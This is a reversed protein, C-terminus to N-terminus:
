QPALKWRERDTLFLREPLYGTPAIRLPFQPPIQNLTVVQLIFSGWSYNRTRVWDTVFRSDMTEPTLYLAQVPKVWYNIADFDDQTNLSLWVCQRKGYWAVAWPVDSMMLESEKMWGATQQIDPPYYPPYAVPSTKPPLMVLIMPLCTLALFAAIIPYRLELAPLNMQDLLTLFLGVSYVFV